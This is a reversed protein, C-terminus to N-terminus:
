LDFKGNENEKEVEERYLEQAFPVFHLSWEIQGFNRGATCGNRKIICGCSIKVAHLQFYSYFGHIQPLCSWNKKRRVVHAITHSVSTTSGMPYEYISQISNKMSLRKVKWAPSARRTHLNTVGNGLIFLWRNHINLYTLGNQDISYHWPHNTINNFNRISATLFNHGFMPFQNHIKMLLIFFHILHLQCLLFRNRLKKLYKSIFL